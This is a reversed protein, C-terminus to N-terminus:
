RWAEEYSKRSKEVEAKPREVAIKGKNAGKGEVIRAGKGIRQIDDRCLREAMIPEYEIVKQRPIMDEPRMWKTIREYDMAIEKRPIDM